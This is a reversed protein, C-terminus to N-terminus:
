VLPIVLITRDSFIGGNTAVKYKLTFTNSGATLGTLLIAQTYSGGAIADFVRTHLSHGDAAALTTAGSVAPSVSPYANGPSGYYKVSVLVLVTTGTTCTVAPGSTALDVYSTSTAAEATAVAAAKMNTAFVGGVLVASDVWELGTAQASNAALVKGNTGATLIGVTDNATGAYLDGKAAITTKMVAGATTVNAADTVDAATEIGDLKTKQAVTMLGPNTGDVATLTADTGTDSIVRSTGADWTLNAGTGPGGIGGPDVWETVLPAVSDIMLIQGVGGDVPPLPVAVVLAADSFAEFDTVKADDPYTDDYYPLLDGNVPVGTTLEALYTRFTKFRM